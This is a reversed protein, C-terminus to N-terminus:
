QSITIAGSTPINIVRTGEGSVFGLQINTSTTEGYNKTFVIIRDNFNLFTIQRPLSYTERISSTNGKFLFLYDVTTANNRFWIGWADNEEALVSKEKAIKIVNVVFNSTEELLFTTKTIQGYFFSGFSVVIGVIIIVLMVELFTFGNM